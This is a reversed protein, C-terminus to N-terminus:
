GSSSLEEVLEEAAREREYLEADADPHTSFPFLTM